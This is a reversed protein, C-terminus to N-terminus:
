RATKPPAPNHFEDFLELAFPKTFESTRLGACIRAFLVESVPDKEVFLRSNVGNTLASAAIQRSRGYALFSDNTIFPHDGPRLVCSRDDQASKITNIPAMLVFQPPRVPGTLLVFLHM